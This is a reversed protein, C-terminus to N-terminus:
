HKRLLAIIATLVVIRRKFNSSSSDVRSKENRLNGSRVPVSAPDADPGGAGETGVIRTVAMFQLFIMNDNIQLLNM